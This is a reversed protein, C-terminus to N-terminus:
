PWCDAIYHLKSLLAESETRKQGLSYQYEISRPRSVRQSEVKLRDVPQVSVQKCPRNAEQKRRKTGQKKGNRTLLSALTHCAGSIIKKATCSYLIFLITNCDNENLIYETLVYNRNVRM